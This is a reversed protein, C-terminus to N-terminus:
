RATSASRRHRARLPRSRSRPPREGRDDVPGRERLWDAIPGFERGRVSTSSCWTPYRLQRPRRRGRSARAHTTPRRRRRRDRDPARPRHRSEEVRAPTSTSRRSRRGGRRLGLAQYLRPRPSRARRGAPVRLAPQHAGGRRGAARAARRRQRVPRRPLRAAHADADGRLRHRRRRGAAAANQPPAPALRASDPPHPSVRGRGTLAHHPRHGARPHPTRGKAARRTSDM